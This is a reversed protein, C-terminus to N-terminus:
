TSPVDVCANIASGRVISRIPDGDRLADSLRKVYLAGIGDARGYGDASIDFTHCESTPSLVGAKMTGIHQEASQILNAGAVIAADCEYNQLAV